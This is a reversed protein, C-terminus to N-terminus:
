NNKNQVMLDINPIIQTLFSYIYKVSITQLNDINEHTNPFSINKDRIKTNLNENLAITWSIYNFKDITEEKTEEFLLELSLNPM